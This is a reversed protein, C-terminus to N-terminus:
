RVFRLPGLSPRYGNRIARAAAGIRDYPNPVEMIREAEIAPDCEGFIEAMKAQVDQTVAAVQAQDADPRRFESVFAVDEANGEWNPKLAKAEEAAPDRPIKSKRRM